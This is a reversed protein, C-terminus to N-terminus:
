PPLILGATALTGFWNEQADGGPIASIILSPIEPDLENIFLVFNDDAWMHLGFWQSGDEPKLLEVTFNEGPYGFNNIARNAQALDVSSVVLVCSVTSSM